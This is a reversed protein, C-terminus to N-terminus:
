SLASAPASSARRMCAHAVEVADGTGALLSEIGIGGGPQAAWCWTVALRSSSTRKSPSILALRLRQLQRAGARSGL